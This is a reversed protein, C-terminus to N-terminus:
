TDVEKCSAKGLVWNLADRKVLLVHLDMTGFEHYEMEKELLSVQHEIECVTKHLKRNDRLHRVMQLLEDVTNNIYAIGIDVDDKITKLPRYGCSPCPEDM